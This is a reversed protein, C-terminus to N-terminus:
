RHGRLYEPLPQNEIFLQEIGADGDHVRVTVYANQKGRRSNERYTKEAAPAIKENVWFKDFPFSVHQAKKREDWYRRESAIVNDGAISESSLREVEAFGDATERLVAFVGNDKRRPNEEEFSKEAPFTEATFRLAIYRGRFLDVPDVPETKFKWVRGERLTKARKWIVSGPVAFQALAVLIFLAIRLNKM